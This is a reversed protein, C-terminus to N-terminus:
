FMMRMMANVLKLHIFIQPMLNLSLSFATISDLSPIVNWDLPVTISNFPHM